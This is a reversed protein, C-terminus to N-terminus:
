WWMRDFDFTSDAAGIKEMQALRYKVPHSRGRKIKKYIVISVHRAARERVNNVLVAAPVIIPMTDNWLDISYYTYIV